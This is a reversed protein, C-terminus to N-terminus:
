LRLGPRHNSNAFGVNVAGDFLGLEHLRFVYDSPISRWFLGLLLPLLQIASFFPSPNEGIVFNLFLFEYPQKGEAFTASGSVEHRVVAIAVRTPVTAERSVLAGFSALSEM